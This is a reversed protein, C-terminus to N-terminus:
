KAGKTNACQKAHAKIGEADKELKRGCVLCKRPKVLNREAM